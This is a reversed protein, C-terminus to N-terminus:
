SQSLLYALETDWDIRGAEAGRPVLAETSELFSKVDRVPVELLPARALGSLSTCRRTVVVSPRGSGSTGM